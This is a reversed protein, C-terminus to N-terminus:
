NTILFALPINKREIVRDIHNGSELESLTFSFGNPSGTSAFGFPHLIWTNRVWLTEIGGGEGQAAEREVEVPVEPNGVGYGFAGAGFLVSTYKFGSTDGEEVPMGDDVIVRLGLYTPISLRGESDPIFEIDDNKVMQSYVASHVTIATLEDYRDGLTNTAEVFVDRNFRTESDQDGTSEVAVDVVMDSDDNDVNDVIIGNVTAILRRQWQREFYTDTRNRIHDMARAGLAIESALDSASWGQNVFAKRAIQEGQVVKGPTAVDGPDDTSYNVEVSGDLDKWFPLEATKGPQSALDDLLANRTVVGSEFFATKEPGNVPPLDRFVTVDIIDSLQTTAM